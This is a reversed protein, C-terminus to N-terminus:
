RYVVMPEFLQQYQCACQQFGRWDLKLDSQVALLVRTVIAAKHIIGRHCDGAETRCTAGDTARSPDGHRPPHKSM